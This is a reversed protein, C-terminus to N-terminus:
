IRYPYDKSIEWGDFFILATCAAKAHPSDDDNKCTRLLEKRDTLNYSATSGPKFICGRGNGYVITFAFIDRNYENPKVGCNVDYLIHMKGSDSSGGGKLISFCGGDSFIFLPQTNYSGGFPNNCDKDKPKCVKLGKFYPFLYRNVFIYMEEENNQHIPYEWFEMAENEAISALLANNFTSYFKKLRSTIEQKKYNSVVSPLTLAAVVGIIGLTILVEVLTFGKKNKFHHIIDSDYCLLNEKCGEFVQPM